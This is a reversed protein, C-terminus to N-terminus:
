FSDRREKRERERGKREEMILRANRDRRTDENVIYPQENSSGVIVRDGTRGVHLETDQDYNVEADGINIKAPGKWKITIDSDESAKTASTTRTTM